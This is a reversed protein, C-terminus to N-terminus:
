CNCEDCANFQLLTLLIRTYTYYPAWLCLQSAPSAPLLLGAGNCCGRFWYMLCRLACVCLTCTGWAFLDWLLGCLRLADSLVSSVFVCLALDPMHVDGLSGLMRARRVV